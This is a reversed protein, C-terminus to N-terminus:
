LIACIKTQHWVELDDMIAHVAAHADLADEQPQEATRLHLAQVADMLEPQGMENERSRVVGAQFM